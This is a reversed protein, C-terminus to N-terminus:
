TTEIKVGTIRRFKFIICLVFFYYLLWIDFTALDIHDAAGGATLHEVAECKTLLKLSSVKSCPCACDKDCYM